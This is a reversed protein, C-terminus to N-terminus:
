VKCCCHLAEVPLKRKRSHKDIPGGKEQKWWVSASAGERFLANADAPIYDIGHPSGHVIPGIVVQYRSEGDVKLGLM